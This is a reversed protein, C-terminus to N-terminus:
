SSRITTDVERVDILTSNGVRTSHNLITRTDYIVNLGTRVYGIGNRFNLGELIVKRKTNDKSFGNVAWHCKGFADRDLQEETFSNDDFVVISGIINDTNMEIETMETNM